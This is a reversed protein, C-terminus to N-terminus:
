VHPEAVAFLAQAVLRRLHPEARALRAELTNRAVIRQDATAVDVGGWTTLSPAVTARRGALLAQVSPADRPDCYVVLGADPGDVVERPLAAIAEALLAALLAPYDPRSRAAALEAETQQVARRYIAERAHMVSRTAQIRSQVVLRAADGRLAREAAALAEAEIEQSRAHAQALIEQAARHSEAEIRGIEQATEQEIAALLHELAM